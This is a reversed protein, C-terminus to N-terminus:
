FLFKSLYDKKGIKFYTKDVKKKKIKVSCFFLAAALSLITYQQTDKHFSGIKM